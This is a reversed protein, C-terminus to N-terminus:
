ACVMGCLCVSCSALLEFCVQQQHRAHAAQVFIGAESEQRAGAKYVAQMQTTTANAQSLGRDHSLTVPHTESNSSKLSTNCECHRNATQSQRESQTRVEIEEKTLEGHAAVEALQQRRSQEVM